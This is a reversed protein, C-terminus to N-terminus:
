LVTSLAVAADKACSVDSLRTRLGVVMEAFVGSDAFTGRNASASYKPLASHDAL